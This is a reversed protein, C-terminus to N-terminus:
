GTCTVLDGRAVIEACIEKAATRAQNILEGATNMQEITHDAQVQLRFRASGRPVVPYEAVNTIVGAESALYNTVRVEFETGVIVPVIPSERGLCALGGSMLATRLAHINAFLSLRRKAGEESFVVDFSSLLIASQIPSLANSFLHTSSYVRLYKLISDSRVCVFGGNSAFTKSFAGVVMDVQGLLKHEELTSRGSAGLIGFDHAIDVVLYANYLNCLDRLRALNPTDSDMSFLGETVVFIANATDDKRIRKLLREVHRDSLHAQLSVNGTAFRAGEQLCNHALADMIIHDGPHVIGRLSGFGAAWGTPYLLVHKFGLADGIREELARSYTTNGMLIASGSSHVGYDKIAREAASMVAPHTGLSLYDQSALNVGTVSRGTEEVQITTTAPASRTSKNYPWLGYKLRENYCHALAAVRQELSAGNISRFDAASGSQAIASVSKHPYMNRNINMHESKSVRTAM